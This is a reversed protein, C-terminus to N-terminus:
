AEELVEVIELLRFLPAADCEKCALMFQPGYRSLDITKEIENSCAMCRLTCRRMKPPDYVVENTSM